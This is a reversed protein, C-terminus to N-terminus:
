AHRPRRDLRDGCVAHAGRFCYAGPAAHHEPCSIALAAPMVASRSLESALRAVAAADPTRDHGLDLAALSRSKGQYRGSVIERYATETQDRRDDSIHGPHRALHIRERDNDATRHSM